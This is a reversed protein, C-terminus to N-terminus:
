KMEWAKFCFRAIFNKTWKKEELLKNEQNQGGVSKVGWKWEAVDIMFIKSSHTSVLDLFSSTFMNLFLFFFELIKVVLTKVLVM